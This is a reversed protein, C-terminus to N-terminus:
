EAFELLQRATRHEHVRAEVHAALREDAGRLVGIEAEHARLHVDEDQVREDQSFGVLRRQRAVDVPLALEVQISLYATSFTFATAGASGAPRGLRSFRSTKKAMMIAIAHPMLKTMSSSASRM